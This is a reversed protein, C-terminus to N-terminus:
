EPFPVGRRERVWNNFWLVDDEQPLLVGAHHRNCRLGAQNLECVRRDEEVVQRAFRTLRDIDVYESDLTSAPLLWNVTLQTQEPGLPLVHVSRVYDVHAVIFVGPLFDAFTMGAGQEDATLGELRPLPTQGDDSWTEKGEALFSGGTKLPHGDPLFTRSTFGQGYLPVLECLDRHVVPCHLCESYNEWFVKWNCEIRSVEQHAIVLEELPWNALRSAENKLSDALSCAPTESLNVFAFGRWTEVHVRYLGYDDPDFDATGLRRPTHTLKGELSYVWGHYPCVIRGDRFTGSAQECLLSGRHRCTDHFAGLQGDPQRVVIFRATGLQFVRFDGTEPLASAHALCIWERAWIKELEVTYHEPDTYFRSPLTPYTRELM